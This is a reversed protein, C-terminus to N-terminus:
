KGGKTFQGYGWIAPTQKNGYWPLLNNIAGKTIDENTLEIEVSSLLVGHGFIEDLKDVAKKGDQLRNNYVIEITKPDTIDSFRVLTLTNNVIFSKKGIPLSNFHKIGEVTTAGAKSPFAEYLERQSRKSIIGFVLGKEGLDIVVAEGRVDASNHSEPFGLKISSASNSVERVASGKKIGEPTEIAITIKYRWEGSVYVDSMAYAVAGVGLVLVVASILIKKM